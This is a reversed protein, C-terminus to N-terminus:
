DPFITGISGGLYSLLEIRETSRMVFVCRAARHVLTQIHGMAVHTTPVGADWNGASAAM